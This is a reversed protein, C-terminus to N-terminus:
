PWSLLGLRNRTLLSYTEELKPIRVQAGILARSLMNDAPATSEGHLKSTKLLYKEFALYLLGIVAM